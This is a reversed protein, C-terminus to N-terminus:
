KTSQCVTQHSHTLCMALEKPYEAVFHHLLYELNAAVLFPVFHGLCQVFKLSM